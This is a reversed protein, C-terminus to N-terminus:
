LIKKFDTFKNKLSYLGKVDFIVANKSGLLKITEAGIEKFISHSVAIIILNYQARKPLKKFNQFNRKKISELSRKDTIAIPDYVDVFSVKAQYSHYLKLLSQIRTDSLKRQM